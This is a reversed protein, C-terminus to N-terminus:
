DAARREGRELRHQARVQAARQLNRAVADQVRRGGRVPQQVPQRADRQPARPRDREVARADREFTAVHQARVGDDDRVADGRAREHGLQRQPRLLAMQQDGVAIRRPHRVLEDLEAVRRARVRAVARRDREVHLRPRRPLQQDARRPLEVGFVRADLRGHERPHQPAREAIQGREGAQVADARPRAKARRAGVAQRQEALMRRPAAHPEREPM